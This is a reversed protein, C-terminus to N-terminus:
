GARAGRVGGGHHSCTFCVGIAMALLALVWLPLTMVGPADHPTTRAGHRCRPAGHAPPQTRRAPAGFFALFVVRFM